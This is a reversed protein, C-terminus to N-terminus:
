AGRADGETSLPGPDLAEAEDTGRGTHSILPFPGFHREPDRRDDAVLVPLLVAQVAIRTLWWAIGIMFVARPPWAPLEYISGYTIELFSDPVKEFAV